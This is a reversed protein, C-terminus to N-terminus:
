SLSSGWLGLLLTGLGVPLGPLCKQVYSSKQMGWCKIHSCQVAEMRYLQSHTVEWVRGVTPQSVLEAICVTFTGSGRPSPFSHCKPSTQCLSPLKRYSRRHKGPQPFCGQGAIHQDPEAWPILPHPLLRSLSTSCTFMSVRLEEWGWWPSDLLGQTTEEQLAEKEMPLVLHFQALARGGVGRNELGPSLFM